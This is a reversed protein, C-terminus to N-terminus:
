SSLWVSLCVSTSNDCCSVAEGTECTLLRINVDALVVSWVQHTSWCHLMRSSLCFTKKVADGVHNVRCKLFIESQGIKCM